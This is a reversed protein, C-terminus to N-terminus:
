HHSVFKRAFNGSKNCSDYIHKVYCVYVDTATTPAGSDPLSLDV